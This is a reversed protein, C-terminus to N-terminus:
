TIQSSGPQCPTGIVSSSTVAALEPLREMKGEAWRYDIVINQGEIWGLDQLGRRFAEFLRARGTPSYGLIGLRLVKGPRQAQSALPAAFLSLAVGVILGIRIECKSNRFQTM